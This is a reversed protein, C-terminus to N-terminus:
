QKEAKRRDVAVNCPRQIAHPEMDEGVREHHALKLRPIGIQGLALHFRGPDINAVAAQQEAFGGQLAQEVLARHAYLPVGSGHTRPEAGQISRRM